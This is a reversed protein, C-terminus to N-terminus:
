GGTTPGSTGSSGVPITQLLRDVNALADELEPSRRDGSIRSRYRRLFTRAEQYRGCQLYARGKEYDYEVSIADAFAALTSYGDLWAPLSARLSTGLMLVLDQLAHEDRWRLSAPNNTIGGPTLYQVVYAGYDGGPHLFTANLGLMVRCSSRGQPDFDLIVLQIVGSPLSRHYTGDSFSFGFSAVLTPDFERRVLRDFTSATVM